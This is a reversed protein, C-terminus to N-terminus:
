LQELVMLVFVDGYWLLLILRRQRAWLIPTTLKMLREDSIVAAIIVLKWKVNTVFFGIKGITMLRGTKKKGKGTPGNEWAKNVIDLSLMCSINSVDDSHQSLEIRFLIGSDSM